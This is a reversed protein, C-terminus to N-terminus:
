FEDFGIDLETLLDATSFFFDTEHSENNFGQENVRLVNGLRVGDPCSTIARVAATDIDVADCVFQYDGSDIYYKPM